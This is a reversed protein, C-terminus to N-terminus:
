IKTKKITLGKLEQNIFDFINKQYIKKKFDICEFLSYCKNKELFMKIGSSYFTLYFDFDNELFEVPIEKSIIKYKEDWVQQSRPHLKIYVDYNNELYSDLEIKLKDITKEENIIEKVLPQEIFLIKKSKKEENLKLKIKEKLENINIKQNKKEKYKNKLKVTLINNEIWVISKINIKLIKSQICNLYIKIINKINMFDTLAIKRYLNPMECNYFYIKEFELRSLILFINLTCENSFYFAKNLNDINIKNLIDSIFKQAEVEPIIKFFNKKLERMQIVEINYEKKINYFFAALGSTNKDVFIINKIDKELLFIVQRVCVYSSVFYINEKM